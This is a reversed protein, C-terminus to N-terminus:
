KFNEKLKEEFLKIIGSLKDEEKKDFKLSELLYNDNIQDILEIKKQNITDVVLNQFVKLNDTFKHAYNMLIQSLQKKDEKENKKYKYFCIGLHILIGVGIGLGIGPATVNAAIVSSITGAIGEIGLVVGHTKIHESDFFKIPKQEEFDDTKISFNISMKEEVERSFDIVDNQIDKQIKDNNIKWKESFQQIEENNIKENTVRLIFSNIENEFKKKYTEIKNNIIEISNSAAINIKNIEDKKNQDKILFNSKYKMFYMNVKSLKDQLYLVFNKVTNELTKNYSKKTNEILKKLQSFFDPANSNIYCQHNHDINKKIFMYQKVVDEIRKMYEDNWTIVKMAKILENKNINFEKIDKPMDDEFKITIRDVLSNKIEKKLKKVHAINNVEYNINQKIISYLKNINECIKSDNLFSEYRKNSFKTILFNKQNEFMSNSLDSSLIATKIDEKKEELNLNPLKEWFTLVFLMSDFSFDRLKRTNIKSIITDIIDYTDGENITSKTVFIFGNSFKIFPYFIIKDLLNNESNLGPFDILEIQFKEEITLNLKDFGEIPIILKM